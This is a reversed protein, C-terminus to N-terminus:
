SSVFERQTPLSRIWLSLAEYMLLCQSTSVVLCEEIVSLPASIYSVHFLRAFPTCFAHVLRTLPTYSALHQYVLAMLPTYAAVRTLSTYAAPM